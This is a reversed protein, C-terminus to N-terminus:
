ALAAWLFKCGVHMGQDANLGYWEECKGFDIVWHAVTEAIGLWVSGTILAVAGGHILSHATLCHLWIGKRKNRGYDGNRNKNTALFDGQLPYDCLAHAALLYFLTIM